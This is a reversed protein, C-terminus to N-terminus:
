RGDMRAFLQRANATTVAAVEGLSVGCTEAVKEAVHRVYAPENTKGRYPVPALYPSDTEVMVRELGVAELVAANGSKAFTVTGTFSIHFGFGLAQRAFELTSSFCHLVGKTHGVDELITFLDEDANRNHVVAPLGLSRALELQARCLRRQDEPPSLNRYYDLGTEGIAVVKAHGALNELQQLVDAPADKVDHPHVGVTAWINPYQEALAISAESTALDLGVCIIAEVGANEARQLVENLKDQYDKYFLHAHTDILHPTM